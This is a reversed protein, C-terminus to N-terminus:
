ANAICHLTKTHRYIYFFSEHNGRNDKSMLNVLLFLNYRRGFKAFHNVKEDNNTINIVYPRYQCFISVTTIRYRAHGM